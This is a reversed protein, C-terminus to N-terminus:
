LDICSAVNKKKSEFSYPVYSSVEWYKQKPQM